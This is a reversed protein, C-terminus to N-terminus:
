RYRPHDEYFRKKDQYMCRDALRLVEHPPIDESSAIGISIRVPILEIEGESNRCGLQLHQEERRLRAVLPDTKELTTTPMLIAFEDGGVRAIIDTTRCVGKLLQAVMILIEDGKEHGYTDNVRKLENVDVAMIAFVIGHREANAIAKRIEQDFYLRNYVGTLADSNASKELERMLLRNQAIASVQGLFITIVKHSAPDLMPGKIFMTGITKNGRVQMPLVTWHAAGAGSAAMLQRLMLTSDQALIDATNDLILRQEPAPIGVFAASEILDPRGGMLIIGFGLEQFLAHLQNLTFTFLDDLTDTQQIMTSTELLSNIDRTRKEVEKELGEMLLANEIHPGLALSLDLLIAIEHKSYSLGNLKTGLCLLASLRNDLFIPLIIDAGLFWEEDRGATTNQALWAEITDRPILLMDPRCLSLLPNQAALSIEENERLTLAHEMFLSSSYQPHVTNWGRLRAQETVTYLFACHSSLLRDFSWERILQYIGQLHHVQSLAQTLSFYKRKLDDATNPIFFALVTNIASRVPMFGIIVVLLGIIISVERAPFLEMAFLGMALLAMIQTVSFLAARMNQLALVLNHKFLGYALFILAIFIFTGFPYIAFGHMAPTNTLTLAAASLFGYGSYRITTKKQLNTTERYARALKYVAYILAILWLGSILDYLAAGKAIFGWDYVYVGQFYLPTSTLPALIIGGAYALYVLWWGKKQETVLFTLHLMAGCLAIVLMLHDIRMITLAIRPDSIIGSLFLDLNLRSFLFCIISFLFTEPRNQELGLVFLALFAACFFSLLPPIGYPAIKSMIFALPYDKLIWITIMLISAYAFVILSRLCGSLIRRRTHISVVDKFFLGYAILALPLFMLQYFPYFRWGYLCPLSMILLMLALVTAYLVVTLRGRAENDSLRARAKYLLTIGLVLVLALFSVFLDYGMGGAKIFPGSPYRYLTYHEFEILTLPMLLLSIAYFLYIPKAKPKGSLVYFLHALLGILNVLLFDNVLAIHRAIHEPFVVLLTDQFNLMAWLICVLAFLRAQLRPRDRQLAQVALTACTILSLLTVDGYPSLWQFFAMLNAKDMHPAIVSLESVLPITVLAAISNSWLTARPDATKADSPMHTTIAFAILLLPIAALSLPHFATTNIFALAGLITLLPIGLLLITRSRSPRTPGRASLIITTLTYVGSFIGLWFAVWSWPAQAWLAMLMIVSLGLSIWFAGSRLTRGSLRDSLQICLPFIFVSLPEGLRAIQPLFPDLPLQTLGLRILNIGACLVIIIGFLTGKHGITRSALISRLLFISVILSILPAEIGIFFVAENM